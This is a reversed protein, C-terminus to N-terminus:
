RMLRWAAYGMVGLAILNMWNFRPGAQVPAGSLYPAPDVKEGDRLVEFHLHNLKYSKPNYGITGVADGAKVRQGKSVARPKLHMYQTIIGDAHQIRVYGGTGIDKSILVEGDSAALASVGDPMHFAKSSWPLGDPDGTIKRYLIDVGEHQRTNDDRWEGFRSSITPIRGKYSPVPYIM